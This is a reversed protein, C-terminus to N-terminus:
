SNHNKKYLHRCNILTFKLNPLDGPITFIEDIDTTDKLLSARQFESADKIVNKM